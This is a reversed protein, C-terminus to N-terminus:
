DSEVESPEPTGPVIVVEPPDLKTAEAGGDKPSDEGPTCKKEGESDGITENALEFTEAETEKEKGNGTLPQLETAGEIGHTTAAAATDTRRYVAEPEEDQNQNRRLINLKKRFTSVISGKKSPDSKAPAPRDNSRTGSVAQHKTYCWAIFLVILFVCALSVGVAIGEVYTQHEDADLRARSWAFAKREEIGFRSCKANVDVDFEYNPKQAEYSYKYSEIVEVRVSSVEWCFADRNQNHCTFERIYDGGKGFRHGIFKLKIDCVNVSASKFTVCLGDCTYNNIERPTFVSVGCYGDPALGQSKLRVDHGPSLVFVKGCQSEGSIKDMHVVTEEAAATLVIAMAVCLALMTKMGM